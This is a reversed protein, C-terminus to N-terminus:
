TLAHWVPRCSAPLPQLKGPATFSEGPGHYDSGRSALLGYGEALRAFREVMERTHNSTVVEVARGGHDRFDALLRRMGESGLTYRGPHALVALGGAARIWAVAEELPAWQHPVYGPKGRALYRKFVAPVSRAKGSAALFRAFHTRGIMEPSSAHAMAGEFAGSIGAAALSAAMRQARELRGARLAALGALLAPDSPDIGLGVVHVTLRDWTVSIEVGPVLRVGHSTAAAQAEALGAVDDHDTLALVDVGGRVALAVVESPRLLGDSVTSHMHLDVNRM